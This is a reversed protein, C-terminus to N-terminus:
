SYKSLLEILEQNGRTSALEFPTQSVKDRVHVNAGHELLVQVVAIRGDQVARHLQSTHHVTENEKGRNVRPFVAGPPPRPELLGGVACTRRDCGRRRTVLWTDKALKVERKNRKHM